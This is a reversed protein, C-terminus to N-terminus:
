GLVGDVVEQMRRRFIPRSFGEAHRRIRVRDYDADEFESLATAFSEVVSEDSASAAVFQGTVGPLVTDLVGGAGLAIVPTGCAMAEVPVIGFDEVGPMLLARARRQLDLLDAHPVRGAFRVTPGALKRCLDASRGDGVVVLPAGALNAARIAVDPRKYPVLRGALLFFDERPLGPDPTFAETDVPPHVVVADRDWWRRIRDAVATSNAVIATLRPAAALEDRRAASALARLASAGLRGGGEGSRMSTEWAWRAPSHVYAVTPASTAFAAQTAFAHHSIVVVDAGDLRMGRFASPMLPTLPAYTRRGLLRYLHDLWTTEPPNLGAPVGSPRALAVHVPAAPWQVSLQEVVHESGAVETFREHVLTINPTM